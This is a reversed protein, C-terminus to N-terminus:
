DARDFENVAKRQFPNTTHIPFDVKLEGNVVKKRLHKAGKIMFGALHEGAIISGYRAPQDASVFQPLPEIVTDYNTAFFLPLSFREEGQNVVRHQTAKFRGNTLAELMDGINVIFTGDIPPAAVWEDAANMVQLGASRQNLITFCEFDSHVGIGLHQNDMPLDNEPYHLLRLYSTARDTMSLFTAEPLALYIAFARFLLDGIEKVADYYEMVGDRFGPIWDPWQNPVTLVNGALFDPDDEAVEQALDLTDFLRPRTLFDYDPDAPVLRYLEPDDDDDDASTPFWGRVGQSHRANVATKKELPSAHFQKSLAYTREIVSGPIGHNKIYFFGVQECALGIENAVAARVSASESRLGSM